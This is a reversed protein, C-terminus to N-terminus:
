QEAIVLLGLLEDGSVAPHHPAAISAASCFCDHYAPCQAVIPDDSKPEPPHTLDVKRFVGAQLPPHRRSSGASNVASPSRRSAELL